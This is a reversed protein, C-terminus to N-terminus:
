HGGEWRLSGDHDQPLSGHTQKRGKVFCKQWDGKWLRVTGHGADVSGKHVRGM